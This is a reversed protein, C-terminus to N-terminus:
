QQNSKIVCRSKVHATVKFCWFVLLRQGRLSGFPVEGRWSFNRESRKAEERCLKKQQFPVLWHGESTTSQFDKVHQKFTWALQDALLFQHIPNPGVYKDLRGVKRDMHGGQTARQAIPAIAVPEDYVDG